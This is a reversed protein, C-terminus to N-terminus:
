VITGISNLCLAFTSSQLNLEIKFQEASKVFVIFFVPM